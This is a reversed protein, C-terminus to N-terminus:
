VENCEAYIRPRGFRPCKSAQPIRSWPKRDKAVKPAGAGGVL